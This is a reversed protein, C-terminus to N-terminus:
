SQHAQGKVQFINFMELAINFMELAFSVMCGVMVQVYLLPSSNLGIELVYIVAVYEAFNLRVLYM